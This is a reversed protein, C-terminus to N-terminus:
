DDESTQKEPSPAGHDEAPPLQSDLLLRQGVKVEVPQAKGPVTVSVTSPVKNNTQVATQPAGNIWVVRNGGHRQVVGNVMIYGRGGGQVTTDSAAQYELQQRQQPTYFLRGLEGAQADQIAGCLALLLLTLSYRNM